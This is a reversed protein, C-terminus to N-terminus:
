SGGGAKVNVNLTFGGEKFAPLGALTFRSNNNLARGFEAVEGYNSAVGKIELSNGKQVISDIRVGRPVLSYAAEMADGWLVKSAVFSAHHQQSTKLQSISSILSQAEPNTSLATTQQQMAAISDEIDAIEGQVSSKAMIFYVCGFALLVALAILVFTKTDILPKARLERPLINIEVSRM